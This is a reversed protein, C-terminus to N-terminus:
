NCEMRFEGDPLAVDSCSPVGGLGLQLDVRLYLPDPVGGSIALHLAGIVSKPDVSDEDLKVRLQVANRTV